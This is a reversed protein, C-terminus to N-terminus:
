QPALQKALFKEMRSYFDFRSEPKSFGHGEEPYVVWEVQSNTKSVADRFRTGHEIPVRRDSGGYALLLPQKLRAAQKLPSTATFQEANKVPDGAIVPLGYNKWEDNLDSWHLDFLMQIDTVAVWAVGCRYLEPEKILGMLTAYGGYSAGAICVRKADALGQKIAWQTADTVDDQMALGWQKWGAEFLKEGYGRSGRFEPEVVLYGRSALFQAESTWRWSGGRVQPGGHVLMVTPWPGKGHLKPNPRTVHLPISMGDRAAFRVFDREAMQRADIAPRSRGISELKDAERDYLWYVMPQKDSYSSVVAWRSCGCEAVDILNNLGPILKDIRAQLAQMDKDVWVTSLADGTYRVGLLKHTKGDFILRGSFDFGALGVLPESDLKRSSDDFRYLARTRDADGREALAYLKSDEGISWPTFLGKSGSFTHGSAVASWSQDAAARWHVTTQAGETTLAVRPVGQPDSWWSQAIQKLGADFLSSRGTSTNLRLLSVSLVERRESDLNDREILVDSSGDRLVRHLRHNPTLEKSIINSGTSEFGRWQRQVLSRLAEGTRDVAFLGPWIGNFFSAQADTVNFVLRDDNVWTVEDVDGDAFGAVSKGKLPPDTNFVVLIQRGNSGATRVALYKGSPSLVPKSMEEVGFFDKVPPPADAAVAEGTAIGCAAVVITAVTAMTSWRAPKNRRSFGINSQMM